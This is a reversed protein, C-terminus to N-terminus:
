DNVPEVADTDDVPITAENMEGQLESTMAPIPIEERAVEEAREDTAKFGMAKYVAEEDAIANAEGDEAEEAIITLTAWDVRVPEDGDKPPSSCTDGIGEANTGVSSAGDVNATTVGSRAPNATNSVKSAVSSERNEYGAKGTVEMAIHAMREDRKDEIM